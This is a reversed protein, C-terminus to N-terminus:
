WQPSPKSKEKLTDELSHIYQMKEAFFNLHEKTTEKIVKVSRSSKQAFEESDPNQMNKYQGEAHDILAHLVKKYWDIIQQKEQNTYKPSDGGWGVSVKDTFRKEMNEISFLSNLFSAALEDSSDGSHGANNAMDYFNSENVFTFYAEPTNNWIEQLASEYAFTMDNALHHLAEHRGTIQLARDSFDKLLKKHFFMTTREHNQDPLVFANKDEGPFVNGDVVGLTDVLNSGFVEEVDHSGYAASTLKEEVGSIDRKLDALTENMLIVHTTDMSESLSKNQTYEFVVEDVNYIEQEVSFEVSTEGDPLEMKIDLVNSDEISSLPSGSQLVYSNIGENPRRSDLPRGDVIVKLQNNTIFVADSVYGNIHITQGPNVDQPEITRSVSGKESQVDLYAKQFRDMIEKKEQKQNIKETVAETTDKAEVSDGLSIDNSTVEKNTQPLLFEKKKTSQADANEAGFLSAATLASVWAINKVRNVFPSGSQKQSDVSYDEPQKNESEGGEDSNEDKSHKQYSEFSSM